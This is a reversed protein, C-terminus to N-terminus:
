HPDEQTSSPRTRSIRLQTRSLSVLVSNPDISKLSGRNLPWILKVSGAIKTWAQVAM